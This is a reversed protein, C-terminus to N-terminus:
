RLVLSPQLTHALAEAEESWDQNTWELAPMIVERVDALTEDTLRTLLALPVRRRLLDELTIAMEERSGHVLEGRCFPLDPVIRKTLSYDNRLLAFLKKVSKGYRAVCTAATERDLGYRVGESTISDRWMAYDDRPSWPFPAVATQSDAHRKRLMRM